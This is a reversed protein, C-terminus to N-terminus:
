IKCTAIIFKLYKEAINIDTKAYLMRAGVVDEIENLVPKGCNFVFDIGVLGFDFINIIKNVIKIEEKTLNYVFAQGGLSYNGRFDNQSVRLMAAAIERGLVYVRLDKGPTDCVRQIVANEMKVANYEDLNNVLFVESGGRGYASKVVCPFFLNVSNFSEDNKDVYVSEMIEVGNAEMYRYTKRKDNCIGSVFSNNYLPIGYEEIKKSLDPNVARFIVFDPKQTSRLNKINGLDVEDEFVFKLEIGLKASERM